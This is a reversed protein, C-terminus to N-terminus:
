GSLCPDVQIVFLYCEGDRCGAHYQPDIFRILELVPFQCTSASLYVIGDAVTGCTLERIGRQGALDHSVALGVMGLHPGSPSSTKRGVIAAGMISPPKGRKLGSLEKGPCRVDMIM